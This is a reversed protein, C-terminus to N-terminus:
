DNEHDRECFVRCTCRASEAATLVYGARAARSAAASASNGNSRARARSRLKSLLRTMQAM